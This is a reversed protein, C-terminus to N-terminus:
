KELDKLYRRGNESISWKVSTKPSFMAGIEHRVRLFGRNHLSQLTGMNLGPYASREGDKALIRLTALQLPSM